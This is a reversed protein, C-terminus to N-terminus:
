EAKRKEIEEEELKMRKMYEESTYLIDDNAKPFLPLLYKANSEEPFILSKVGSKTPTDILYNNYFIKTVNVNGLFMRIETGQLFLDNGQNIIVSEIPNNDIKYSLWTNGDVARVYVNQLDSNMSDKITQPLLTTDNNEPANTKVSFLKGKIKKFNISPFNRQFEPESPAVEPKKEAIPTEKSDENDEAAPAAVAPTEEKPEEPKEPQKLLASSSEIKPGLDKTKQSSVENEVVSTILQYGGIFLLIVAGFILIPFISKTSEIISDGSEIVDHPSPANETQTMTRAVPQTQMSKTHNLAPFPKGLVNLYTYEMKTIAEESPINLVKAYSTVFGKIYAASPLNQYDNSELAKLINVSIKTKQSMKELTFNKDVRKQKLYDGLLGVKSSNTGTENSEQKEM